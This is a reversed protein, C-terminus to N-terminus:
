RPPGYRELLVWTVDFAILGVAALALAVAVLKM